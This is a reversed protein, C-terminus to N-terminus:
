CLGWIPGQVQEQWSMLWASFAAMGRQKLATGAGKKQVRAYRREGGIFIQYFFLFLFCRVLRLHGTDEGSATRGGLGGSPEMGQVFAGM